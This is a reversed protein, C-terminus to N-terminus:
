CSPEWSGTRYSYCRVEGTAREVSLARFAGPDMSMSGRSPRLYVVGSASASGNRHFTLTGDQGSSAFNISGGGRPLAPVGDGGFGMNEPLEQVRVDEGADQIGDNDGDSHLRMVRDSVVFTVVLDHQRLVALRQATTLGMALEQAASDARWRDTSLLPTMMSAMVGVIVMVLLM